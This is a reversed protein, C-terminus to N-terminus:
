NFYSQEFSKDKADVKMHLQYNIVFVFALSQKFTSSLNYSENSCNCKGKSVSQVAHYVTDRSLVKYHIENWCDYWMSGM